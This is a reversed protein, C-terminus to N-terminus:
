SQQGHTAGGSSQRFVQKVGPDRMQIMCASQSCICLSQRFAMCILKARALQYCLLHTRAADRYPKVWIVQVSIKCFDHVCAHEQPMERGSEIEMFALISIERNWGEPAASLTWPRVFMSTPSKGACYCDPAGVLRASLLRHSACSLGRNAKHDSAPHKVIQQGAPVHSLADPPTQVPPLVEIDGRGEEYCARSQRTYSRTCCCQLRGKISLKLERDSGLEWRSSSTSIPRSRHRSSLWCSFQKSIATSPGPLDIRLDKCCSAFVSRVYKFVM